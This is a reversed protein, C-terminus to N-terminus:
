GNVEETNIEEYDDPIELGLKECREPVYCKQVHEAQRVPMQSIDTGNELIDVAMEGTIQGLEYYDITLTAIGCGECVGKEGCIVPVKAPECINNILETNSAATNDTPIYIVDCNEAATTTVAAIDDTGTFNYEKVEATCGLEELSSKIIDTQYRSNPEASCYLIGVAKAEPFLEMIMEAQQQLPACDSTGSVNTGVVGDWENLDLAAPYDTVSTGLVPITDTASVAAQLVPTSNALILDMDESVFANMVTVCNALEGSANQVDFTVKDGLKESIYDQFGKTAQELAEHQTLQCIGIKYSVDKACVPMVSIGAVLLGAWVAKKVKKKM